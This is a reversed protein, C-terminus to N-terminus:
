TPSKLKIGLLFRLAHSSHSKIGARRAAQTIAQQTAKMGTHSRFANAFDKMETRCTEVIDVADSQLFEKIAADLRQMRAVVTEKREQLAEEDHTILWTRCFLETDRIAQEPSLKFKKGDSNFHTFDGHALSCADHLATRAARMAEVSEPRCFLCSMGLCHACDDIMSITSADDSM